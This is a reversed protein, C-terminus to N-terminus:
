VRRPPPLEPGTGPAEAAPKSSAKAGSKREEEHFNANIRGLLIRAVRVDHGLDIFMIAIDGAGWLLGALVLLRTVESILDRVAESGYYLLGTAIEGIMLILLLVALVKFLRAIYRLATYPELDTTRVLQASPTATRPPAGCAECVRDFDTRESSCDPCFDTPAATTESM